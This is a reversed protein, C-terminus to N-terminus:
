KVADSIVVGYFEDTDVAELVKTGKVIAMVTNYCVNPFLIAIWHAKIIEHTYEKVWNNMSVNQWLTAYSPDIMSDRPFRIRLDNDTTM